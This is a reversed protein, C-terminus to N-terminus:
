FLYESINQQQAESPSGYSLMIFFNQYLREKVWEPRDDQCAMLVLWDYLGYPFNLAGQVLPSESMLIDPGLNDILFSLWGAAVKLM